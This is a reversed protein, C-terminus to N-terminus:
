SPRRQDFTVFPFPLDTVTPQRRPGPPQRRPGDRRRRPGAPRRATGSLAAPIAEIVDSPMLSAGLGCQSAAVGTVHLALGAAASPDAGQALFSGIAGTLVDGMGAVALASPNEHTSVLLGGGPEAVLSPTGKLLTVLGHSAAFRRATGVRDEQVARTSAAVLRAMEGPHPTVVIRRAGPGAAAGPGAGAGPGVGVGPGVGAGPGVGVGVGVGPGGALLTLADADIVAPHDERAALVTEVQRAAETGTGLGPGLAVADCQAVAAALAGTDRADVFIAEPVEAIAERAPRSACVRVLGAGCRFAARAALVAAGPMASGAVIVLAGVDNKHTVAGRRPLAGGAWGPTILRAWDGHDGPPFGIEVAVIRGCRQRGPHLLTGLKPWGFAITVDARVADGPVRGSTGDVGSPTDLAVVAGPARNAARIARAHPPRPAGRIGTGLLGDVVVAARDLRGALDELGGPREPDLVSAPLEWGHLVPDARPREGVLVAAVRRGWAALARLCVLADGGNNGSGVLAVVTGQPFLRDIILAAQRGANEMLAPEPVGLEDMSIRDYRAAQAATPAHVVAKGFRGRLGDPDM